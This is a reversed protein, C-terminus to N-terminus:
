FQVVKYVTSGNQYFPQYYVGSCNYYSGGATQTQTCGDPLYTVIAGTPPAVVVYESGSPQMYIGDSYIYSTSGVYVTDYYPPPQSVASGIILGTTFGVWGWGPPVYYGGGYWGGGYWRDDYNDDIFDQRNDQRDTRYDQRTEQRETRNEQRGQQTTQRNGQRETRNDQRGQQTTQRNDQRGQQTTQRSDQRGQQTTQRNQQRGQQTTQRNQQTQSRSGSSRSGGSFNGRNQTSVSSNVRPSAGGGRSGASRSVGASRGGGGGRRQAYATELPLLSASLVLAFLICLTKRISRQM